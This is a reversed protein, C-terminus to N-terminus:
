EEDQDGEQHTMWEEICASILEKHETLDMKLKKELETRVAKKSVNEASQSMLISEVGNKIKDELSAGKKGNSAATKARKAPKKEKEDEDEAKRKKKTPPPGYLKVEEDYRAKDKKALDEYPAKQSSSLSKWRRGIEKTVDTPKWDPNEGQIESRVSNGYLVFASRARKATPEEAPKERNYREKDEKAMEEYPGKEEETLGNWMEALRRMVDSAAVDPNEARFKPRSAECFFMYGSRARKPGDAKKKKAAKKAEAELRKAAKEDAKRAKEAERKAAKEEKERQKQEKKDVAAKSTPKSDVKGKKSPPEEDGSEDEVHKQTTSRTKAPPEDDNEGDEGDEESGGSPKAAQKGKSAVPAPQEESGDESVEEEVDEVDSPQDENELEDHDSDSM